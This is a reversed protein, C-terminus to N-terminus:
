EVRRRSCAAAHMFVQRGRARQEIEQRPARGGRPRPGARWKSARKVTGDGADMNMGVILVSRGALDGVDQRFYGISTRKPRDVVGDDPQEEGTILRFLTTKGAGNPGVLGVKEGPNIQFSAGVFLVQAGYQKTVNTFAIMAEHGAVAPM